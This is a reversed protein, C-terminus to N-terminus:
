PDTHRHFTKEGCGSTFKHLTNCCTWGRGVLYSGTHERRGCMNESGYYDVSPVNRQCKKCWVPTLEQVRQEAVQLRAALDLMRKRAEAAPLAADLLESSVPTQAVALAYDSSRDAVPGVTDDLLKRLAAGQEAGWGGRHAWTLVAQAMASPSAFFREELVRLLPALVDPSVLEPRFNAAGALDPWLPALVETLLLMVAAADVGLFSANALAACADDPSLPAPQAGLARLKAEDGTSLYPLLRHFGAPAPLPLRRLGSPESGPACVVFLPGDATDGGVAPVDELLGAFVVSTRVLQARVAAYMVPPSRTADVFAVGHVPVGGGCAGLGLCSLMAALDGGPETM